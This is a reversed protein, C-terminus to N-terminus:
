EKKRGKYEEKDAGTRKSPTRGARREEEMATFVGTDEAKPAGRMKLIVAVVIVLIVIVIAVYTATNSWISRGVDFSFSMSSQIAEPDVGDGEIVAKAWHTGVSGVTFKLPVNVATNAPIEIGTEKAFVKGDNPFTSIITLDVTVSAASDNYITVIIRGASRDDFGGRVDIDGDIMVEGSANDSLATVPILLAVMAFALVLMKKPVTM